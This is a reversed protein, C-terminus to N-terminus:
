SQLLIQIRKWDGANMFKMKYLHFGVNQPTSEQTSLLLLICLVDVVIYYYLVGKNIEM